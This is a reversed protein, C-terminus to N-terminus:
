STELKPKSYRAEDVVFLFGMANGSLMVIQMTPTSRSLRLLMGKKHSSASSEIISLGMREGVEEVVDDGVAVTRRGGNARTLALALFIVTPLAAITSTLPTFALIRGSLREGHLPAPSTTCACLASREEEVGLLM